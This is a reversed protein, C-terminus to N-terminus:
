GQGSMDPHPSSSREKLHERARQAPEALRDLTSPPVPYRDLLERLDDADPVVYGDDTRALLGNEELGQLRYSLGGKSLDLRDALPQHRLPGEALLVYLVELSARRRLQHVIRLMPVSIERRDDVEFYRVFRDVRERAIQGERHLQDLHHQTLAPSLGTERATARFHIGPYASVAELVDAQKSGM